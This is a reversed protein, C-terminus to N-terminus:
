PEGKAPGLALKGSSVAGLRHGLLEAVTSGRDTEVWPLMVDERHMLGAEVADRQSKLWWFAVRHLRRAERDRLKGHESKPGKMRAPDPSWRLRVVVVADSSAKWRFRLVTAGTDYDDEWQLGRVAFGELLLKAIEARSKDVTTKTDAFASGARRPM